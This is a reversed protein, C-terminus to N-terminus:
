RRGGITLLPRQANIESRAHQGPSENRIAPKNRGTMARRMYADIAIPDVVTTEDSAAEPEPPEACIAQRSEVSVSRMRMAERLGDSSCALIEMLKDLRGMLGDDLYGLIPSGTNAYVFFKRDIPLIRMRNLVFRTSKHLGAAELGEPRSIRIEFGTNGRTNQSTGYAVIAKWLNDNRDFFVAVILSPRASQGPEDPTEVM